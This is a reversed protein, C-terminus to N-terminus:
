RATSGAAPRTHATPPYTAFQYVANNTPDLLIQSRTDQSAVTAFMTKTWVGLTSRKLLYVLADTTVPTGADNASTKVAAFM